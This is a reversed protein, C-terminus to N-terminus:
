NNSFLYCIFFIFIIFLIPWLSTISRCTQYEVYKEIVNKTDEKKDSIVGYFTITPKAEIAPYGSWETLLVVTYLGTEKFFNPRSSMHKGMDGNIKKGDLETGSNNIECVLSYNNKRSFELLESDPKIYIMPTQLNEDMVVDFREIKYESM